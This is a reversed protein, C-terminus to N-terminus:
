NSTTFNLNKAQISWSNYIEGKLGIFSVQLTREKGTGSISIRAYNQYKDVGLIRYSNNKERQDFVHTGATLPSSTIDYLPYMGVNKVEIIESHHRDGT